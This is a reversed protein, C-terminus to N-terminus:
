AGAAQTSAFIMPVGTLKHYTCFLEGRELAWQDAIGLGPKRSM